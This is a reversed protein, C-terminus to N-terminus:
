AQGLASMVADHFAPRFARIGLNDRRPHVRNTVLAVVVGADPDCWLSTGTFGLHGFTNPGMAAGSSPQPGSRVDWGLRHSGGPQPTLMAALTAAPLWDSRGARAELVSLGLRALGGATGFIGAHGAVGGVAYANEDHVEGQLVRGRWPCAETPAVAPDRWRTGVGRFALAGQLGLPGTVERAVLMSLSLGAVAELMRGALIYGLDSYVAEPQAGARSVARPAKHLAALARQWAAEGEADGVAEYLPGWAALGARHSLLAGLTPPDDGHWVGEDCRADWGVVGTTVLRAAALATMPKTLSALDFVTETTVQPSLAEDSLRGACGEVIHRDQLRAYAWQIGPAVHRALAEAVVRDIPSAPSHSPKM